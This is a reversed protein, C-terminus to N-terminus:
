RPTDGLVEAAAAQLVAAVDTPVVLRNGEWELTTPLGVVPIGTMGGYVVLAALYTGLESPHFADESYLAISRDRRLAALWADGAPLLATDAAEAADAYSQSVDAFAVEAYAAPWVTMLAPNAGRARVADAWRKTWRRLHSRSGTQTSPGQQMVVADWDESELAARAGGGHWHDELSYSPLAIMRYEIELTGAGRGLAAVMAPLDNSFTLSNGIFLVRAPPEGGTVAGGCAGLAPLLALIALQRIAGRV